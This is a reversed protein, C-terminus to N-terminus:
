FIRKRMGGVNADRLTWERNFFATEGEGDEVRGSNGMEEREVKRREGEATRGEGRAWEM